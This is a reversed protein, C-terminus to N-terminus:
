CKSLPHASRAHEASETVQRGIEKAEKNVFASSSPNLGSSGRNGRYTSAWGSWGTGQQIRYETLHTNITVIEAFRDM